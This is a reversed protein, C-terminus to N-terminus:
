LALRGRRVKAEEYGRSEKSVRFVETGRTEKPVEIALIGRRDKSGRFAKTARIGKPVEIALIVRRDKSVRSGTKVRTEKVEPMGRQRSHGVTVMFLTVVGAEDIQVDQITPGTIDGLNLMGNSLTLSFRGLLVEANVVSVGDIGAVGQVGQIGQDGTDGKVGQIGQDGQLGTVVSSILYVTTM